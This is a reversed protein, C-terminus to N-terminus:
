KRVWVAQPNCWGKLGDLGSEVGIGSNKHGGFGVQPGVEFHSNVWVTGAEEWRLLDTEVTEIIAAIDNGGHGKRLRRVITSLRGINPVLGGCTGVFPDCQISVSKEIERYEVGGALSTYM